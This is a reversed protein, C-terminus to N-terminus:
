RDASRRRLRHRLAAIRLGLHISALGLIIGWPVIWTRGPLYLASVLAVLGSFIYIYPLAEYLMRPLWIRRALLRRLRAVPSRLGDVPDTRISLPDHM